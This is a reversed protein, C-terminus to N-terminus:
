VEKKHCTINLIKGTNECTFTYYCGQINLEVTACNAGQMECYNMFELETLDRDLFSGISVEIRKQKSLYEETIDKGDRHVSIIGSSDSIISTSLGRMDKDSTRECASICGLIIEMVIMSHLLIKKYM